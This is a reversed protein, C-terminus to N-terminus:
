YCPVKFSSPNMLMVNIFQRILILNMLCTFLRNSQVRLFLHNLLFYTETLVFRLFCLFRIYPNRAQATMPPPFRCAARRFFRLYNKVTTQGRSSTLWLKQIEIM